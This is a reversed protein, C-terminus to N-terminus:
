RPRLATRSTPLASPSDSSMVPLSALALRAEKWPEPVSSLSLGIEILDPGISSSSASREPTAVASDIQSQAQRVAAESRRYEADAQALQAALADESLRALVDGARVSDGVEALVETIEYGAVNAHVQVQRRAVLSGSVPVRAQVPTVEATALTVLPLEPPLEPPREPPLPLSM